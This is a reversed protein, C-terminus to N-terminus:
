FHGFCGSGEYLNMRIICYVAIAINILILILMIAEGNSTKLMPALIATTSTAAVATVLYMSRAPRWDCPRTATLYWARLVFCIALIILISRSAVTVGAIRATWRLFDKISQRALLALAKVILVYLAVWRITLHFLVYPLFRLQKMIGGKKM